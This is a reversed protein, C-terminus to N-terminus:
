QTLVRKNSLAIFGMAVHALNLDDNGAHALLEEIQERVADTNRGFRAFCLCVWASSLLSHIEPMSKELLDLNKNILGRNSDGLTLAALATTDWFPMLEHGFVIKNGYNWGGDPLCRDELLRRGEVARPHKSQGALSLALLAWSTPEVWGFTRPAWSWGVLSTDIDNAPNRAVRLSRFRILFDIAADRESIFGLHHLAIALLASNWLGEGAFESNLGISGDANRNKMVWEVLPGADASEGSAILALIMLLTPESFSPMGPSYPMGGDPNLYKLFQRPQLSSTMPSNNVSM